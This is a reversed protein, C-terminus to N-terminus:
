FLSNKYKKVVEDETTNLEKYGNVTAFVDSSKQITIESGGAKLSDMKQWMEDTIVIKKIYSLYLLAEMENISYFYNPSYLLDKVLALKGANILMVFYTNAKSYSYCCSSDGNFQNRLIRNYSDENADFSFNFIFGEHKEAAIRLKSELFVDSDRIENSNEQERSFCINPYM